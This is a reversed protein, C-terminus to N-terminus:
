KTQRQGEEPLLNDFFWQVPRSTAGDYIEELQLPILPCLPYTDPNDLWAQSYGFAWLGNNERLIGVCANNIWVNLSREMM